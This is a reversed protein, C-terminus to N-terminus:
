QCLLPISEARRNYRCGPGPDDPPCPGPAVGLGTRSMRGPAIGNMVYFREVAQARQESLRLNFQPNGVSDTFVDIQVCYASNQKLREVNELLLERADDDLTSGGFEFYVTNLETIPEPKPQEIVKVHVTLRETDVGDEGAVDTNEVRLIVTYEGPSSYRHRPSSENSVNGDGFDWEYRVPATGEIQARFSVLEGPSTERPNGQLEIIKAPLPRDVVNVILNRQDRSRDNSVILTVVYSGPVTYKHRVSLGEKVIGDNFDWQYRIPQTASELLSATFVGEEQKYLRVPGSISVGRVPKFTSRLNIKFGAGLYGLVDFGLDGKTNDMARDDLVFDWRNEIYLSFIPSLAIDFGVGATPGFAPEFTKEREFTSYYTMSAGAILYPTYSLDPLVNFRAHVGATHNQTNDGIGPRDTRPYDGIRYDIGLSLMPSIVFGLGGNFGYSVLSRHTNVRNLDGHYSAIGSSATVYFYNRDILFQASASVAITILLLMGYFLRAKYCSLIM